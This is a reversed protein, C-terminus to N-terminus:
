KWGLKSDRIRACTLRSGVRGWRVAFAQEGPLHDQAKYVGERGDGSGLQSPPKATRRWTLLAAVRGGAGHRRRVRLM